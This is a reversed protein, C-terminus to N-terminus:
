GPRPEVSTPLLPQWTVKILGYEDTNRDDTQPPIGIESGAIDTNQKRANQASHSTSRSLCSSTAAVPKASAAVKNGTPADKTIAYMESCVSPAAHLSQMPM